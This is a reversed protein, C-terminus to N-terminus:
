WSRCKEIFGEERDILWGIGGCTECVKQNEKPQKPLMEIKEGVFKKLM